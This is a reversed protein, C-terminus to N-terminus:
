DKRRKRIIAWVAAATHCPLIDGLFPIFEVAGVLVVPDRLLIFNITIQLADFFDGIGPVMGGCLEVVTDSFLSTGVALVESLKV